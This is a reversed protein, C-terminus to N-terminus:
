GNKRGGENIQLLLMTIDDAQQVGDAFREIDARLAHLLDSPSATQMSPANLFDILRQESYLVDQPGLAETVGDTYLFLRDGAELQIEQQRYKIHEMGALIFGPKSPLREYTQGARCILPPNHGANVYVLRNTSLELIGMFATVFMDAENNECLQDNVIEFVQAPSVGSQAHNKILTKAIVMFLAAPVGKGSVDAIVIGLHTQDILFFDYFDGGVEKAAEMTAYIDFEEREPFAPFIRPLMSTQIQTAVNLEAGIREKEATVATLNDIYQIIDTEMKSVAHALTGLEDKRHIGELLDLNPTNHEAFRKSEETITLIPTVVTRRLFAIYVTLFLLVAITTVAIVHWVYTHRASDLSTMAKEVGLMAIIEGDSTRIPIAATTHAGSQETESYFYVASRTGTTMMNEVQDTYQPDMDTATYGLEYRSFGVDPHIADFIYTSTLYDDSLKTVYITVADASVVLDDLQQQIYLYDDDIEGTELYSELRDPDLYTKATEAIEYASQNYQHELVTTFEQYGMYSIGSCLVVSLLLISCILKASLGHLHKKM